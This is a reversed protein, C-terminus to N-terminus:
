FVDGMSINLIHIKKSKLFRKIKLCNYSVPLQLSIHLSAGHVEKGDEKLILVKCLQMITYFLFNSM